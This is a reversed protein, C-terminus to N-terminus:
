SSSSLRRGMGTLPHSLGLGRLTRVTDARAAGPPRPVAWRAAPVREPNGAPAPRGGPTDTVTPRRQVHHGGSSPRATAAGRLRDAEAWGPPLSDADRLAPHDTGLRM